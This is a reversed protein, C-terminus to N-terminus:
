SGLKDLLPRFTGPPPTPHPTTYHPTTHHNLGMKTNLKLRLWASGFFHPTCFHLGGFFQGEFYQYLDPWYYSLYPQYPCIDGPCINGQCIDGHCNSDTRSTGLFRHKFNTLILDTVSSINPPNNNNNNQCPYFLTM